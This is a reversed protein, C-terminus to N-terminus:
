KIKRFTLSMRGNQTNTKPISHQWIKQFDQSMYVLSGSTLQYEFTESRNDIKRFKLTRTEGLSIIAIGTNKSLIDTQDSHFGM